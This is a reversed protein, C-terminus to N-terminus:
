ELKFGQFTAGTKQKARMDAIVLRVLFRLEPPSQRAYIELFSLIAASQALRAQRGEIVDNIAAKHANILRKAKRMLAPNDLLVRLAKESNKYLLGTYFKGKFNNSLVRDRYQRFMALDSQQSFMGSYATAWTAADIRGTRRLNHRFMPWATTALGGACGEIAYLNGDLSGVYVTGDGVIAPSSEVWDGTPLSWKLTGDPNLAYFNNDMSGVYITGDAGLAPTSKVTSGTPFSWMLAGGPDIAYLGSGIGTYIIGGSGVAPSADQVFEFSDFQWQLTGDPNLAYLTGVPSPMYVTGDSGIAPSSRQVNATPFSWKVSGDPAVAYLDGPIGNAVYISGDAAIAPSSVGGGINLTWKVSGGPNFAYLDDVGTLVYITGDAAIAPSSEIFNNDFTYQWKLSGDPNVAYLYGTSPSFFDFSYSTAYITGDAGIAPTGYVFPGTVPFAWKQTGDPNIAYLHEDWSGVYITGDSEVAPSSSVFDGTPFAWKLNGCAALSAAPTTGASAQLSAPRGASLETAQDALVEHSFSMANIAIVLGTLILSSKFYGQKM